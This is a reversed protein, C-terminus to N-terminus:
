IYLVYVCVTDIFLYIYVYASLIYWIWFLFQRVFKPVLYFFDFVIVSLRLIIVDYKLGNWM